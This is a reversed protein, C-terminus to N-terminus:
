ILLSGGNVRIDQGTVFSSDESLLFDVVGVVDSVQGIRRLPISQGKAYMREESTNGRPQPTDILGPSVTNVRIGSPALEVAMSRALGLMGGKTAAYHGSAPSGSRAISSSFLVISGKGAALMHPLVSQCAFLSGKLNIAFTNDWTEEDLELFPMRKFIAACAVLGSIVDREAHSAVIAGLADRDRVDAEHFSLLPHEAGDLMGKVLDIACVAFGRGILHEVMGHGIGSGAGTVVVLAM